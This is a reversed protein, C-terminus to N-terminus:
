NGGEDLLYLAYRISFFLFLTCGLFIAADVCNCAICKVSYYPRNVEDPDERVLVHKGIAHNYEYYSSSIGETKTREMM